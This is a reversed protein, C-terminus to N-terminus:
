NSSNNDTTRTTPPPLLLLVVVFFCLPPPPPLYRLSRRVPSVAYGDYFTIHFGSERVYVAALFCLFLSAQPPISLAPPPPPIDSYYRNDHGQFPREIQVGGQRHAEEQEETM